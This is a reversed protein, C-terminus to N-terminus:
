RARLRQVAGALGGPSILMVVVMLAGFILLKYDNAFRALEPLLTLLVAGVIVGYISGIGGVVVMALISISVVFGFADPVILQAVHAYLVGAFGAGATGMVFAALKFRGVNLGLSTAAQEDQAIMTFGTGLWSRRIAVLLLATAAVLIWALTAMGADSMPKPISSIGIEGGLWGQKRVFGVFLFNVGMTTIALFDERVRLSALGVVFGLIGAAIGGAVFSVAFPAGSVSLIASVYAGTGYFAAHGLSIQGCFGSILNLSLALAVNIAVFITLSLIYADM